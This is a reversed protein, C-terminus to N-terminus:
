VIRKTPLTLHTYSVPDNKSPHASSVAMSVDISLMVDIPSRNAERQSTNSSHSTDPKRPMVVIGAWKTDLAGLSEDRSRVGKVSTVVMPSLQRASQLDRVVISRDQICSNTDM